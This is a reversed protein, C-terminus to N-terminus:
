CRWHKVRLKRDLVLLMPKALVFAGHECTQRTKLILVDGVTPVPGALAQDTPRLDHKSACPRRDLARRHAQKGPTQLRVNTIQLGTCKVSQPADLVTLVLLCGMGRPRHEEARMCLEFHGLVMIGRGPFCALMYTVDGFTQGDTPEDIVFHLLQGHIDTAVSRM